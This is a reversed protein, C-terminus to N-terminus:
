FLRVLQLLLVQAGKRCVGLIGGGALCLDIRGVLRGLGSDSRWFEAEGRCESVHHAVTDCLRNAEASKGKRLSLLLVFLSYRGKGEKEMGLMKNM